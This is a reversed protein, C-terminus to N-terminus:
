EESDHGNGVIAYIRVRYPLVDAVIRYYFEEETNHYVVLSAGENLSLLEVVREHKELEEQLEVFAGAVTHDFFERTHEKTYGFSRDLGELFAALEQKWDKM